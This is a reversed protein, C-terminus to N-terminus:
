YSFFPVFLWMFAQPPLRLVYATEARRSDFKFPWLSLVLGKQAVQRRFGLWWFALTAEARIECVPKKLNDMLRPDSQRVERGAEFPSSCSRPPPNRQSFLSTSPPMQCVWRCRLPAASRRHFLLLSTQRRSTCYIAKITTCFFLSFPFVASKGPSQFSDRRSTTFPSCKFHQWIFFSSNSLTRKVRKIEGWDRKGRFSRGDASSPM